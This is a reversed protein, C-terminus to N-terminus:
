SCNLHNYDYIDMGQKYTNLQVIPTFKAPQPAQHTIEALYRQYTSTLLQNTNNSWDIEGTEKGFRSVLIQIPYYKKEKDPLKNFYNAFSNNSSVTDIFSIFNNRNQVLLEAIYQEPDKVIFLANGLREIGQLSNNSIPINFDIFYPRIYTAEFISSGLTFDFSNFSEPQMSKKTYPLHCVLILLVFFLGLVEMVAIGADIPKKFPINPFLHDYIENRTSDNFLSFPSFYRKQYTAIVLGDTINIQKSRLNFADNIKSLNLLFRDQQKTTIPTLVPASLLEETFSKEYTLLENILNSYNDIIYDCCEQIKVEIELLMQSFRPTFASLLNNNPDHGSAVLLFQNYFDIEHKIYNSVFYSLNQLQM